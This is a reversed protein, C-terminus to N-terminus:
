ATVMTSPLAILPPVVRKVEWRAGSDRIRLELMEEIWHEWLVDNVARRMERTFTADRGMLFGWLTASAGEVVLTGSAIFPSYAEWSGEGPHVRLVYTTPDSAVLQLSAKM